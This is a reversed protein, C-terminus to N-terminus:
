FRYGIGVSGALLDGDQDGYVYPENDEFTSYTAQAAVYFNHTVQYTGGVTLDLQTYELDSYTEVGEISSLDYLIPLLPDTIPGPWSLQFSNMGGETQNYVVHAFM